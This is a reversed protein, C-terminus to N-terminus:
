PASGFKVVSEVTAMWFQTFSARNCAFDTHIGGPFYMVLLKAEPPNFKVPTVTFPAPMHYEM